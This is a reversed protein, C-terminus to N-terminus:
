SAGCCPVLGQARQNVRIRATTMRATRITKKTRQTHCWVCSLLDLELLVVECLLLLLEDEFEPVELEGLELAVLSSLELELELLVAGLVVLVELVAEVLPLV